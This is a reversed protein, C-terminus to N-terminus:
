KLYEFLFLPFSNLIAVEDNADVYKTKQADFLRAQTIQEIDSVTDNCDNCVFNAKKTNQDILDSWNKKVEDEATKSIDIFRYAKAAAYAFAESASKFKGDACGHRSVTYNNYNVDPMEKTYKLSEVMPYNVYLKGNETEEDFYDLMEKIINDLEEPPLKSNQFDYDFFLYIQSFMTDIRQNDAVEISNEKLPLVRFLDYDNDKLKKYLTPLDTGYKVIGIEEENLFLKRISEFVKPEAKAGEFVFLIM